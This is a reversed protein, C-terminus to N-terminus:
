ANWQLTRIHDTWINDSCRAPLDLMVEPNILGVLVSLYASGDDPSACKCMCIWFGLSILQTCRHMQTPVM